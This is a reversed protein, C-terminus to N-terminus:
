RAPGAAGRLEASLLSLLDVLGELEEFELLGRSWAGLLLTFLRSAIAAAAARREEGIARELARAANRIQEATEPDHEGMLDLPMLLVPVFLASVEHARATM